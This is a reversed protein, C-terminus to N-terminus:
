NSKYFGQSNKFGEALLRQLAKHEGKEQACADPSSDAFGDLVPLALSARWGCSVNSNSSSLLLLRETDAQNIEPKWFKVSAGGM